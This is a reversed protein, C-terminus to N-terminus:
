ADRRVLRAGAIERVVVGLAPRAARPCPVIVVALPAIVHLRARRCQADLILPAVVQLALVEQHAQRSTDVRARHAQVAFHGRPRDHKVIARVDRELPEAEKRRSDAHRLAAAGVALRTLCKSAVRHDAGDEVVRGGGEAGPPHGGLQCRIPQRPVSSPGEPVTFPASEKLKRPPRGHKGDALLLEVARRVAAEDVVRDPM